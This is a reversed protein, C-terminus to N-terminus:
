IRHMADFLAEDQMRIDLQLEQSKQAFLDLMAQRPQPCQATDVLIIMSKERSRNKIQYLKEIAVVSMADCGLGWSTDTPYLLTEGNKLREAIEKIEM